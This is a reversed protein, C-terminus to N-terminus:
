ETVSGRSLALGWSPEPLRSVRATRALPEAVAVVM